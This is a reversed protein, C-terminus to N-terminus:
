EEGDKMNHSQVEKILDNFLSYDDWVLAQDFCKKVKYMACRCVFGIIGDAGEEFGFFSIIRVADQLSIEHNEENGINHFVENALDYGNM